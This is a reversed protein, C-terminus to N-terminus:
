RRITVHGIELAGGVLNGFAARESQRGDGITKIGNNCGIQRASNRTSRFVTRSSEHMHGAIALARASKGLHETEDRRIKIHQM